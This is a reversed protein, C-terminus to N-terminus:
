RGLMKISFDDKIKLRLDNESKIVVDKVLYKVFDGIKIRISIKHKDMDLNTLGLSLHSKPQVEVFSSAYKPNISYSQISEFGDLNIAGKSMDVNIHPNITRQLQTSGLEDFAGYICYQIPLDSDNWVVEYNASGM